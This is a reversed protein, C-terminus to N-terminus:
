QQKKTEEVQILEKLSYERWRNFSNKLVDDPKLLCRIMVRREEMKYVIDMYSAWKEFAIKKDIKIMRSMVQFAKLKLASRLRIRQLSLLFATKSKNEIKQIIAALIISAKFSREIKQDKKNAVPRAKKLIPDRLRWFATHLNIKSHLAFRDIAFKMIQPDAKVKWRYFANSKNLNSPTKALSILLRGKVRNTIKSRQLPHTLTQGQWRHFVVLTIGMNILDKKKVITKLLRLKQEEKFQNKVTKGAYAESIRRLAKSLKPFTIGKLIKVGLGIQGLRTFHSKPVVENNLTQFRRGRHSATISRSTRLPSSNKLFSSDFSMDKDKMLSHTIPFSSKLKYFAKALKDKKATLEALQSIALIVNKNKQNIIIESEQNFFLKKQISLESLVKMTGYLNKIKKQDLIKELAFSGQFVRFPDAQKEPSLSSVNISDKNGPGINKRAVNGRSMSRDPSLTPSIM